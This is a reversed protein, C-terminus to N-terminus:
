SKFGKERYVKEWFIPEDMNALLHRRIAIEIETNRSRENKDALQQILKGLYANIYITFQEKEAGNGNAM